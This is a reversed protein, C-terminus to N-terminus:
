YPRGRGRGRGGRGGPMKGGGQMPYGGYPPYGMGYGMGYGGQMGGMGMGYGMGMGMGMGPGGRGLGGRGFGGMGRKQRQVRDLAKNVDCFRGGIEQKEQGTSTADDCDSPKIFTVFCFGKNVNSNDDKMPLEVKDIEGFQEFHARIEKETLEPAFGGVFIKRGRERGNARKAEIRKSNLAHSEQALVKDVSDVTEFLVFGFGRSIGQNDVKISASKVTGWTEFYEKMQQVTTEWHLGGVFIKRDDNEDENAGVSDVHQEM